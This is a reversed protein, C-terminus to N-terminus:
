EKDNSSEQTSLCTQLEYRIRPEWAAWAMNTDVAITAYGDLIRDYLSRKRGDSDKMDM